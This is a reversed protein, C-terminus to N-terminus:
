ELLLKALPSDLLHANPIICHGGIPGEQHVINYKKFQPHGMAEYGRNYTHNASTYITAFNLKHKKCFNYVEKEILINLGYITTDWLKLAETDEQHESYFVPIHKLEWIKGVIMAEPGGFYKTFTRIGQELEPHIGRVPSHTAGLKRSTGIPVTSHIITHDPDYLLQYEKVIEIFKENYGICIHLFKYRRQPAKQDKDIGDCGLISAIATGVEGLGIVLSNSPSDM